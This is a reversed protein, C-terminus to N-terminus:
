YAKTDGYIVKIFTKAIIRLDMLISWNEVYFIDFRVRNKIDRKSEIEGRYGSIQALGTIGPKVLHRLMFKDIQTAFSHTHAVMHPRPGVVSMDGMLVNYFQPMEDLSTKRLFRGVKTTRVDTKSAQLDNAATNVRMSRFKYCYFESGGIGNRKQKFFIPGKNDFAILLSVLPTLWSLIGIVVILSITLDLSRKLFLNVPTDIPLTRLALIPTIGYYQFEMKKTFIKKNDPLFKLSVLNNDAFQILARIQKNKLEAISCFMQSIDNKLVFDKIYEINIEPDLVDLNAILQFGYAPNYNFFNKLRETKTNKGIIIVRVMDGGLQRRFRKRVNFITIKLIAIVGMSLCTYELVARVSTNIENFIGLFTFSCIVLLFFQRAIITLIRVLPTFRYISYFSFGYATILWSVTIFVAFLLYSHSSFDFLKAFGILILIDISAIIPQVLYNHKTDNVIM